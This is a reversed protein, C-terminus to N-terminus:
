PISSRSTPIRNRSPVLSKERKWVMWVPEQSIEGHTFRGPRSVSWEGGDIPSTLFPPAVSGSGPVIKKAHHKNILYLIASILQHFTYVWSYSFSFETAKTRLRFGVIGM